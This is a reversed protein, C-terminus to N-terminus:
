NKLSFLKKLLLVRRRKLVSLGEKKGEVIENIRGGGVGHKKKGHEAFM